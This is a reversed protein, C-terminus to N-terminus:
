RFVNGINLIWNPDFIRKLKKMKEITEKGYMMELYHHKIKGIGHEASITGGSKIVAKALKTYINKAISLENKDKPLINLHLHCDGFHGFALWELPTNELTKKYLSYTNRFMNSPVAFDMSIKPYGYQSIKENITSPLQHRINKFKQHEKFNTACWIDIIHNKNIEFFADWSTLIKEEDEQAFQEVYICSDAEPPIKDNSLKLIKLSQKDFYEICIPDILSTSHIKKKNKERLNEALQIAEEENKIFVFFGINIKPKILLSLEANTIVGLTGESGIFLDMIDMNPEIYYGAANKTKPLNYKPLSIEKSLDKIFLHDWAIKNNKAKLQGRKIILQKGTPLIVELNKIWKRTAGFYFSRAGSSNNAITSGIQASTETPDPPYFYGLPDLFDRIEALTSGAGVSLTPLADSNNVLSLKKIKEMAIIKGGFPIRGGTTGTGAGSITITEKKKNAAKLIQCIDSTRQPFYVERAYGGKLYSKDSFFSQIISLDKKIIM